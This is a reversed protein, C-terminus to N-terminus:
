LNLSAFRRFLRQIVWAILPGMVLWAWALHGAIWKGLKMGASFTAPNQVPDPDNTAAVPVYHRLLTYAGAAVLLLAM